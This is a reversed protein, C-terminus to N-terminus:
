TDFCALISEMHAAGCGCYHKLEAEALHEITLGRVNFDIKVNLYFVVTQQLM